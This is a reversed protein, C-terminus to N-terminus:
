KSFNSVLGRSLSEIRTCLYIFLYILDYCLAAVCKTYAVCFCQLKMFKKKLITYEHRRTILGVQQFSNSSFTKLHVKIRWFIAHTKISGSAVLKAHTCTSHLFLDKVIKMMMSIFYTYSRIMLLASTM